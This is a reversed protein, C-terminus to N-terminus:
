SPRCSDRRTFATAGPSGAIRCAVNRAQSRKRRRASGVSVLAKAVCPAARRRRRSAVGGGHDRAHQQRVTSGLYASNAGRVDVLGHCRSWMRVTDASASGRGISGRTTLCGSSSSSSSGTRSNGVSPWSRRAPGNPATSDTLRPFIVDSEGAVPPRHSAAGTPHTESMSAAVNSARSARDWTRGLRRRSDM